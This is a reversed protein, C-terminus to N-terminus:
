CCGQGRGLLHTTATGVGAGAGTHLWAHGRCHLQDKVYVLKHVKEIPSTCIIIRLNVNCTESYHHAHCKQRPSSQKRQDCQASEMGQRAYNRRKKKFVSREDAYCELTFASARTRELEEEM